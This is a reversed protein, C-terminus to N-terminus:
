GYMASIGAVGLGFLLLVAYIGLVIATLLGLFKFLSKLNKFSADVLEQNQLRLGELMNASFRYLYLVPFFYLLAMLLYFVTFFTGMFGSMGNHLVSALASGMFTGGFLAFLVMLGVIVFGVIALFKGWKAAKRLFGATHPSIIFGEPMEEYFDEEM